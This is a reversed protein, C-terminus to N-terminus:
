GGGRGVVVGPVSGIGAGHGDPHGVRGSGGGGGRGPDVDAGVAVADRVFGVVAGGDAVVALGIVVAVADAVAAIVGVSDRCSRRGVDGIAVESGGGGGPRVAQASFRQASRGRQGTREVVEM